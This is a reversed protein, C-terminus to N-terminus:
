QRLVRSTSLRQAADSDLTNVAEPCVLIGIGAENTKALFASISEQPRDIFDRPVLIFVQENKEEKLKQALKLDSLLNLYLDAQDRARVLVHFQMNEPIARTVEVGYLWSLEVDESSCRYSKVYTDGDFEINLERLDDELDFGVGLETKRERKLIVREFMGALLAARAHLIDHKYLHRQEPRSQGSIVSDPNESGLVIMELQEKSWVGHHVVYCARAMKLKGINELQQIKLQLKESFGTMAAYLAKAESAEVRGRQAEMLKVGYQTALNQLEAPVRGDEVNKTFRIEMSGGCKYAESLLFATLAQAGALPGYEPIEATLFVDVELCNYELKHRVVTVGFLVDQICYRYPRYDTNRPLKGGKAHDYDFKAHYEHVHKEFNEWAKEWTKDEIQVPKREISNLRDYMYDRFSPALQEFHVSPHLNFIDVKVVPAQSERKQQSCVLCAYVNDGIVEIPLLELPAEVHSLRLALLADDVSIQSHNIDGLGLIHVTESVLMGFEALFQSYEEPLLIEYSTELQLVDEMKCPGSYKILNEENLSEILNSVEVFTHKCKQNPLM